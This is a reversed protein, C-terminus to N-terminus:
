VHDEVPKPAISATDIAKIKNVLIITIASSALALYGVYNYNILEGTGANKYVILGALLAGLGSALQQISANISMFSGRNQPLVTATVITSGSIMRAGIFIFNLSTVVLVLAMPAHGINTLYATPGMMLISFITFIKARGYKDALKGILPSSFITVAGGLLYIYTLEHETFGVNSVMFPSLLSIYSFQSLMIFVMLALAMLQNSNKTVSVVFKFPNEGPKAKQLHGTMSPVFRSILFLVILGLFALLMFPMQWNFSTALYLGFPVGVVSAVSFSAMVMGMASARRDLPIADGIIALVLAGLLGGFIGTLTRASLLLIYSDSLGCMLTGVVFGSYVVVLATKRDFKDIFFAGLFGFIGASFTYSSVVLSFEQPNINFTRMLQPGLPMMIMFDMVNTFQVAALALLLLREKKM